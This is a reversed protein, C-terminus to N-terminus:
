GEGALDRFEARLGPNSLFMGRVVSTVMAGSNRVGRSQMCTHHGVAYVTVDPTGALVQIEDAVQEVFREQIQLGHAYRYCVRAFKSAGLLRGRTLYGIVVDMSFPLLHHECMSWVDNVKLVTLQDVSESSFSTGVNGPDYELFDKWFRAVRMPTDVLGERTPDEGLAVLLEQIINAVKCKEVEKM